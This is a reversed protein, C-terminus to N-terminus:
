QGAFKETWSVSATTQMAVFLTIVAGIAIALGTFGDFFFAFSFLVLYVFQALGAEYAMSKMGAVLRLYSVVLFVSVFSCIVFASYLPIVDALYAMLLHFAFFASALFFYNMPHLDIRRLTTLIFMVFFFFLLSVPAFFSIRGTIPGPQLKEPMAVGIHFGSILTKYNWNLLWGSPMKVESTPSLANPPLNYTPLNSTFQLQFDKVQSTADGFDYSWMDLGQSHYEAGFTATAHAPVTAVAFFQGNGAQAPVAAGNVTLTLGDYMAQQAPLQLIFNVAQPSDSTNTFEYTGAFQVGYTSYWLLGKKRPQLDLNVNVRSKELPIDEWRTGSQSKPDPVNYSAHPARQMQETGWSSSVADKLRGDLSYTRTFVTAGLVGWAVCSCVFIFILAVIRKTM